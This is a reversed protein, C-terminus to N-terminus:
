SANALSSLKCKRHGPGEEPDAVAYPGTNKKQNIEVIRGIFTKNYLHRFGSALPFAKYPAHIQNEVHNLLYGREKKLSSHM